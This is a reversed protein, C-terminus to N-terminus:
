PNSRWHPYWNADADPCKRVDINDDGVRYFGRLLPLQEITEGPRCDTGYPCVRCDVVAASTNQSVLALYGDVRAQVIAKDVNKPDNKVAYLNAILAWDVDTTANADYHGATCVCDARSTAGTAVTYSNVPCMVCATASRAPLTTIWWPADAM